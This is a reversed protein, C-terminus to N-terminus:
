LLILANTPLNKNQETRFLDLKRLVQRTLEEGTKELFFEKFSTINVQDITKTFVLESDFSINKRQRKLEEIIEKSALRNSSGVRIYTGEEITSQKLHYPPASGKFIVVQIISKGEHRLFSIEPLIVPECLDHIISSIKEETKLLLDEDIGTVQRPTDQIGIYMTGGADNAFAIATKAIDLGSTIEKKFELKRGESQQLIQNIKSM